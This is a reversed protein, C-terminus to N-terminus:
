VTALSPAFLQGFQPACNLAAAAGWPAAAPLVGVAGAAGAPAPAVAEAM